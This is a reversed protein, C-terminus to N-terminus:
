MNTNGNVEESRQFDGGRELCLIRKTPDNQLTEEIFALATCGSGIVIYDYEGDYLIKEWNSQSTSITLQTQALM